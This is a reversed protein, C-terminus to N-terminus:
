DRDGAEHARKLARRLWLGAGIMVALAALLGVLNSSLQALMDIHSGFLYGLGIYLGVWVAEGAIDWLTFVRRDLRAAGAALNVYPGLPSLLWRSFFVALGGRRALLAEARALALAAHSGPRIRDSAWSMGSRGIQYGVQDGLVAGAFAGAAVAGLSLDGSASLGGAALMMLSSPVPMALCSLFTTVMLVPVGGVTLWALLTETM